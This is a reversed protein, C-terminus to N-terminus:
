MGGLRIHGVVRAWVTAQSMLAGNIWVGLAWANAVEIISASGAVPLPGAGIQGDDDLESLPVRYRLLHQQIPRAEM